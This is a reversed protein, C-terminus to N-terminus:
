KKKSRSDTTSKEEMHRLQVTGEGPTASKVVFPVVIRPSLPVNQEAPKADISRSPKKASEVM